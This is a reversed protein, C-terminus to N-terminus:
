PLRDFHLTVELDRSGGIGVALALPSPIEKNEVEILEGDVWEAFDLGCANVYPEPLGPLTFSGPPHRNFSVVDGCHDGPMSDRPIMVLKRLDGKDVRVTVEWDGADGPLWDICAKTPNDEGSLPDVGGLPIDFDDFDASVEATYWDATITSLACTTGAQPPEPPRKKASATFPILAVVLVVILVTALRRAISEKGLLNTSHKM